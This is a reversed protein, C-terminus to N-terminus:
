RRDGDEVDHPMSGREARLYGYPTVHMLNSVRSMYLDAHREIQRAFLSKDNGARLLPGWATNGIEGAAQALPAVEADVAAISRITANIGRDVEAADARDGYDHRMRLRKLRLQALAHDLETKAAMLEVLRAQTPRFAELEEIEHELERVVLGTRWRLMAKSAHVDGFLHDGVYLLDAGALGLSAEVLRADGGAYVRGRELLGRYPALLGREEDEVRYVPQSGNFFQPKRADVIVLDFLSRWTMPAPLYPDVAYAMLAQTYSWNSNTILLLTRGAYHQDLLALPLEPDADIYTDPDALIKAKLAGQAHAEDLANRTIRHLDRYSNVGTLLGADLLDVLQCFLNAESLSFLTNMFEWRPDALEVFDGSYADRLAEFPLTKTGHQARIVYGFRTAKVLNGLDLDFALGLTVKRPDFVLDDVPWGRGALLRRGHEFAEEEWQDVRYHVLTYDM